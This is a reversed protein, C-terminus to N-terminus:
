RNHNYFFGAFNEAPNVRFNINSKELTTKDFLSWGFRKSVVPVFAGGM